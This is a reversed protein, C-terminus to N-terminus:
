LVRYWNYHEATKVLGVREYFRIARENTSVVDLEIWEPEAVSLLSHLVVEGMCPCCSVIMKLQEDVMWGAGLLKGDRHVFYAGGQELIEKEDKKELTAAHDIGRLRNNILERWKEVTEQTVPWLHAIKEPDLVLRGRMQYLTSYHPYQALDGHGRAFIREAGVMRCFSICERLLEEPELASQIVIYAEQRYPVEKLILSAVGFDTTFMPFDRMRIGGNAKNYWTSEITAVNDGVLQDTGIRETTTPFKVVDIKNFIELNPSPVVRFKDIRM